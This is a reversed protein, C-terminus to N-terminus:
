SSSSDDFSITVIISCEHANGSHRLTVPLQVAKRSIKEPTGCETVEFSGSPQAPAVPAPEASPTPQRSQDFISEVIPKQAPAAPPEDDFSPLTFDNKKSDSGSSLSSAVSDFMDLSPVDEDDSEVSGPRAGSPMAPSSPHLGPLDDFSSSGRQGDKHSQMARDFSSSEAEPQPTFPRTPRVPEDNAIIKIVPGDDEDFSLSPINSLAADARSPPHPEAPYSPQAPASPIDPISIPPASTATSDADDMRQRRRKKSGGVSDMQKLVLKCCATLTEIVGTGDVASAAFFPVKDPNLKQDLEAVPLVTDLDRKNYQMVFPISSLDKKYYNLNENLDHLSEINEEMKSAQSDAVFVVGDVGTLVARRTLAYYVQGPVTYVHFRTKFGKVDGLEIPLFDFFLTRDDKTALSMIDGRQTPSLMKHVCQVNSTKGCLAPGYYVIKIDIERKAANFVAM